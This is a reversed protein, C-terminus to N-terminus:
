DKRAKRVLAFWHRRHWRTDTFSLDLERRGDKWAYLCAVVPEDAVTTSAGPAVIWLNEEKTMRALEEHKNLADLHEPRALEYDDYESHVALWAKVEDITMDQEPFNLLVIDVAPRTEKPEFKPAESIRDNFYDYRSQKRREAWSGTGMKVNEITRTRAKIEQKEPLIFLDEQSGRSM